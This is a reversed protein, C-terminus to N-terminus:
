CSDTAPFLRVTKGLVIPLRRLSLSRSTLLLLSVAKGSTLHVVLHQLRPVEMGDRALRLVSGLAGTQLAMGSHLLQCLACAQSVDISLVIRNPM